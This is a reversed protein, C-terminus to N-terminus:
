KSEASPGVANVERHLLARGYAILIISAAFGFVQQMVEAAHTPIGIKTALISFVGIMGVAIEFVARWIRWKSNAARYLLEAVVLVVAIGILWRQWGWVPESFMWGILNTIASSILLTGWIWASVTSILELTSTVDDNHKGAAERQKMRQRVFDRMAETRGEDYM